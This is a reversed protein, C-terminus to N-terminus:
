EVICLRMRDMGGKCHEECHQSSDLCGLMRFSFGLNYRIVWCQDAQGQAAGDEEVYTGKAFYLVM